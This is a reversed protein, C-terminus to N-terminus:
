RNFLRDFMANIREFVQEVITSGNPVNPLRPGGGYGFPFDDGFDPGPVGNPFLQSTQAHAPVPMAIFAVGLFLLVAIMFAAYGRALLTTGTGEQHKSTIM